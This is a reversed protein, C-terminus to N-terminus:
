LSRLLAKLLIVNTSSHVRAIHILGMMKGKIAVICIHTKDGETVPIYIVALDFGNCLVEGMALYILRTPWVM